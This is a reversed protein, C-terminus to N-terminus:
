ADKLATLVTKDPTLEGSQHFNRSQCFTTLKYFNRSQHFNDSHNHKKFIYQFLSISVYVALFNTAKNVKRYLQLEAM